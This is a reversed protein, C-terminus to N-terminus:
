DWFEELKLKMNCLDVVEHPFWERPFLNQYQRQLFREDLLLIAGRDTVTRIVRGAAQEVKNMGNYLYSYDFGHGNRDDYFARHLERENCVQPLGTGVIVAGILSDDKLDIGESFIGGLVCLGTHPEEDRAFASLFEERENEKMGSTQMLLGPVRDSLLEGIQELMKYSPFFVMHNGRKSNVFETIYDAIKEFEEDSRRTYKTSVDRGIMLLRNSTDFPSPAYIAYDEERGGLQERYYNIPLLTASFFVSTRLKDLTSALVTSPDMCMLRVRFEGEENYDSVILYNEDVLEYMNMFHRIEFYFDLLEERDAPERNKRMYEDMASVIHMLPLAIEDINELVECEDCQRKLKLLKTNASDLLRALHSDKLLVARKVALFHSKVLEASYMERARDVLNHAEDALLIFDPIKEEAFFRRLYVNPDFVYNYDCIIGDAWTCVDLCMEFPCVTHKEAYQLILDRSIGEEHTLMDFVADNVRDFHGKARPCAVPNCDPKELICIKEKATITVTKFKLNQEALIRFAEEAVTRVITKATVYFVKEALGEGMAKVAPFVTSITKGVGTPAEIFLRKKRLISKYVGAVLDKQGPRYEFPFQLKKISANRERTWEYEWIAWKFYEDTLATFWKELEEFEFFEEFYKKEETEINCYTLRIGMDAPFMSQQMGESLKVEALSMNSLESGSNKRAVYFFYAYCMAQARHEPVPAEIRTVDRLVCKIEDIMTCREGTFIGDARGEVTLEYVVGKHEREICTSLGVEALYGPGMSKQIKRHLRSGAQMADMVDSGASRNDLDGSRLIFEVLSRVSIRIKAREKEM